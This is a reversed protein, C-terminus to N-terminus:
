KFMPTVESLTGNNPAPTLGLVHSVIGYVEVNKMPPHVYNSAFQPGNAIFIARMDEEANDYGHEGGNWGNWHTREHTAIHWGVEAVILLPAIRRHSQFNYRQPLEDKLYVSLHQLDSSPHDAQLQRLEQAYQVAEEETVFLHAVPDWSIVKGEGALTTITHFYEDLYIVRSSSTAAMGHDSVIIVNTSDRVRSRDLAGILHGITSDVQILSTIVENSTPGHAHGQHDVGDFYLTAFSPKEEDFWQMLETVRSAYSLSGDFPKYKTPYTGQIPLDSGPWFMCASHLGAKQVTNWLPEGGYWKADDELSTGKRMTNYHQNWVPDFIQNGVLGHSEAYLGTIISWHNPFTKSPFIPTMYEARTGAKALSLINPLYQAYTTLYDARFGDISVLLVTVPADKEGGTTTGGGKPTDTTLTVACLLLLVLSVIVALLITLWENRPRQSPTMRPRPLESPSLELHPSARSSSPIPITSDTAPPPTSSSM